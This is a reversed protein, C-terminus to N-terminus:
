LNMRRRLSDHFWTIPDEAGAGKSLPGPEFAPSALGRQVKECIWVDETQFDGTELPHQTWNDSSILGTKKDYGPVYKRDDTSQWPGVWQYVDLRTRAAALPRLATLSLGYPTPVVLTLPFLFYVGGYGPQSASKLTGISGGEKRLKAPLRHRIGEENAHWIMHDGLRQWINEGPAPGGLTQEHLYALHYGDLANEVFVKWNCKVDYHLPVCDRADSAFLDHPWAEERVPGIWADLDAAPNANVFVFERYIGLAAPKLGFKSRDLGPFCAQMDPVGRLAGDLGYTWRHYPCVISGGVNGSPGDFLAAGRHRCHNHVANLRGDKTRVIAIDFAGARVTVFDGAHPCIGTTGVFSWADAFLDKEERKLWADDVYANRALRFTDSM